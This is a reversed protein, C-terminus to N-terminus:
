HRIRRRCARCAPRPGNGVCNVPVDRGATPGTRTGGGDIVTLGGPKARHTYPDPAGAPINQIAKGQEVGNGNFAFDPRIRWSGADPYIIGAEELQKLARSVFSQSMGVQEAFKTQNEVLM